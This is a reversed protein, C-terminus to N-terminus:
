RLRCVEDMTAISSIGDAPSMFGSRKRELAELPHKAHYSRQALLPFKRHFRVAHTSVYDVEGSGCKIHSM